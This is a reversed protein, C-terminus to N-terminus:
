NRSQRLKELIAELVKSADEIDVASPIEVGHVLNNRFRRIRDIEALTPTDFLELQSIIRTTPIFPRKTQQQAETLPRLVREFEIWLTLFRGMAQQTQEVEHAGQPALSRREGSEVGRIQKYLEYRDPDEALLQDIIQDALPRSEFDTNLASLYPKIADPTAFGIKNLLKYLVNVRGLLIEPDPSKLSAGSQDLLYDALDYHNSFKRGQEAVRAKGARQLRELAIEGAIVMGNLEDLIAYEDESLDGQQPKYVLRAGSRGM